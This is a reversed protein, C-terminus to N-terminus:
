CPRGYCVESESNYDTSPGVCSFGFVDCWVYKSITVFAFLAVFFLNVYLLAKLFDQGVTKKPDYKMVGSLMVFFSLVCFGAEIILFETANM